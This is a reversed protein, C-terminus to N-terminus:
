EGDYASIQKIQRSKGLLLIKAHLFDGIYRFLKLIENRM